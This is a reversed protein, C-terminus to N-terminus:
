KYITKIMKINKDNKSMKDGYYVVKGVGKSYVKYKRIRRIQYM